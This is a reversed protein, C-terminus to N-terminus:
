QGKVSFISYGAKRPPLFAGLQFLSLVRCLAKLFCRGWFFSERMLHAQPAALQNVEDRAILIVSVVYRAKCIQLFVTRGGEFLDKKQNLSFVM